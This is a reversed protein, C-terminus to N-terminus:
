RNATVRNCKELALTYCSYAGQSGTCREVDARSCSNLVGSNFIRWGYPEYHGTVQNDAVDYGSAGHDLYIAAVMRKATGTPLRVGAPASAGPRPLGDMLTHPDSIVNGKVIRKGENATVGPNRLQNGNIYIAGCDNLLTCFTSIRNDLVEVRLDKPRDPRDWPPEATLIGAYGTGSVENGSVRLDRSQNVRIGNFDMGMRRQNAIQGAGVVRNGDVLVSGQSSLVIGNNPARNVRSRTVRAELASATIAIGNSSPQVVGVNDIRVRPMGVVRIADGAAHEVRVDRIELAIDKGAANKTDAWFGIGAGLFLTRVSPQTRDPVIRIQRQDFAGHGREDWALLLRRKARDHFWEGHSDLLASHNVLVLGYGASPLISTPEGSGHIRGALLVKGSSADVGQIPAYAYSWPSARVIAYPGADKDFPESSSALAAATDNRGANVCVVASCDPGSEASTNITEFRPGRADTNPSRALLLRQDAAFVEVVRSADTDLALLTLGAPLRPAAQRSQAADLRQWSTAPEAQTLTAPTAGAASAGPAQFAGIEIVGGTTAGECLRLHLAGSLTAGRQLLLHDGVGLCKVQGAFAALDRFDTPTPDLAPGVRYTAAQATAAAIATLLATPVWRCIWRAAIPVGLQINM